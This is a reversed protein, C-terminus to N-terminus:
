AVPLPPYQALFIFRRFSARKRQFFKVIASQTLPRKRQLVQLLNDQRLLRVLIKNARIETHTGPSRTAAAASWSIWTLEWIRKSCTSLMCSKGDETQRRLRLGNLAALLSRLSTWM